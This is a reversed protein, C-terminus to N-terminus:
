VPSRSSPFSILHAFTYPFSRILPFPPFVAACPSKLLTLFTSYILQSRHHVIRKILGEDELYKIAARALSGNVQSTRSFAPRDADLDPLALWLLLSILHVKMRDILISQSILKFTPVEKLIKDYTPKDVVVANNAKDKVKGTWGALM